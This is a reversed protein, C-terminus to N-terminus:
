RCSNGHIHIYFLSQGDATKFLSTVTAGNQLAKRWSDSACYSDRESSSFSNFLASKELPSISDGNTKWLVKTFRFGSLSQDVGTIQVDGNLLPLSSRMQDIVLKLSKDTPVSSEKVHANVLFNVCGPVPVGNLKGAVYKTKTAISLAAEDFAENMSSVKIEPAHLLQSNGDVCAKIQAIAGVSGKNYLDPPFLTDMNSPLSRIKAPATPEGDNGVALVSMGTLLCGVSLVGLTSRM